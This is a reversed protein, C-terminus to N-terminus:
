HALFVEIAAFHRDRKMPRATWDLKRAPFGKMDSVAFSDNQKMMKDIVSAEAWFGGAPPDGPGLPGSIWTEGWSNMIFFQERPKTRYGLICMCHAWSGSARASGDADRTSAFGQMSCVPIPYYSQIAKKAEAASKIPVVSRIPHNKAVPELDKPCGKSGFERCTQVSYATLDYKEYKGRPVVGWDKVFKAAWAGVSGDGRIKGGGVQVRSGGYIVEQALDKFKEAKGTAIQAVQLYEAGCAWGFSVCSGVSGQNRTPIHKGLTKKALAWLYTYEEDSVAKWADTEKFDKFELTAVVERVAAPDDVWGQGHVPDGGGQGAAPRPDPATAAQPAPRAVLVALGCFTVAALGIALQRFKVV